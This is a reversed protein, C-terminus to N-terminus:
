GNSNEQQVCDRLADVVGSYTEQISGLLEKSFKQELKCEDALQKQLQELIHKENNKVEVCAVSLQQEDLYHELQLQDNSKSESVKACKAKSKIQTGGGSLASLFRDDLNSSSNRRTKSRERPDNQRFQISMENDSRATLPYSHRRAKSQRQKPRQRYQQSTEKVLEEDSDQFLYDNDFEDPPSSLQRKIVLTMFRNSSNSRTKNRSRQQQQRNRLQGNIFQDFLWEFDNDDDDDDDDMDDDIGSDRFSNSSRWMTQRSSSNRPMDSQHRGYSFNKAKRKTTTKYGSSRRKPGFSQRTRQEDLTETSSDDNESANIEQFQKTLENLFEVIPDSHKSNNGKPCKGSKQNM